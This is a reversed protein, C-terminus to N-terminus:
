PGRTRMCASAHAARDSTTYVFRFLFAVIKDVPALFIKDVSIANCGFHPFPKCCNLLVLDKRIILAYHLYILFPSKDGLLILIDRCGTPM